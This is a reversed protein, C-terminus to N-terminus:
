RDNITLLTHIHSNLAGDSCNREVLICHGTDKDCSGSTCMDLQGIPCRPFHACTGTQELCTGIMCPDPHTCNKPACVCEGDNGCVCPDCLTSDAFCQIATPTPPYVCQGTTPDCTPISCNDRMSCTTEVDVFMGTAPNCHTSGCKGHVSPGCQVVTCEGTEPDCQGTSCFGTPCVKPVITCIHHEYDIIVTSCPATVNCTFPVWTCVAEGNVVVCM